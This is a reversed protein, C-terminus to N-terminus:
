CRFFDRCAGFRVYPRAHLACNLNKINICQRAFELLIACTKTPRKHLNKPARNTAADDCPNTQVIVFLTWWVIMLTSNMTRSSKKKMTLSKQPALSPKSSTFFLFNLIGVFVYSWSSVHAMARRITGKKHEKTADNWVSTPIEDNPWTDSKCSISQM